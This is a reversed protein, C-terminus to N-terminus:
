RFISLHRVSILSKRCGSATPEEGPARGWVGSNELAHPISQIYRM